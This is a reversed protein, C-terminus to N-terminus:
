VMEILEKVKFEAPHIEIKGAEIKSLDLIDNILGLLHKTSEYVMNLQKKQENNLEGVIGQLLIGTFGIISNLPTRLEHSMNALFRSKLRTAEILQTNADALEKTREELESTREKVLESLHDRHKRLEKEALKRETIDRVVVLLRNRDGIRAHRMNVEAWFLNGSKRRARWEFSQPEGEAAKKIWTLADQQSYPSEGLSLAEVNLRSAEEHSYGYMECMRNNVELIDGTELNHVFIADNVANFITRFRDESEYLARHSNELNEAMQNFSVALAGIEDKRYIKVRASLNKYNMEKVTKTFTELPEIISCNMFVYLGLGALVFFGMLGFVLAGTMTRISKKIYAKSFGIELSGTQKGKSTINRMEMDLDEAFVNQEAASRILTGRNDFVAVSAINEYSLSSTILQNVQKYDYLDLMPALSYSLVGMTTGKDTEYKDRTQKKVVQSVIFTSGATCLFTVILVFLITKKKLSNIKLNQKM